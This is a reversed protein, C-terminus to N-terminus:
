RTAWDLLTPPRYQFHYEDAIAQVHRRLLAGQSAALDRTILNNKGWPDSTLDFYQRAPEVENEVFLREGNQSLLGYVPGYSSVVLYDNRLYSDYESKEHTFLPRGFEPANLIPRHGLLYFLSPTVDITFAVKSTDYYLGPLLKKPVHVILPVRLIEPHIALAHRKHGIEKLAEGHDATIVIVSNDYLGRAKLYRIFGGFCVDLRELESAISRDFGDYSRQPHIRSAHSSISIIHINQSQTYLFIPQSSKSSDVKSEFDQATTCLDTDTWTKINEDLPVTNSSSQLLVRLTTDVTIFKRYGDVDVMKELNNLPHFPQVFHKHLLMSGTWISPESLTTGAYRTFANRMVVSDAAFKGLEPTFDVAPNYASVYDQRLSDIVFIFINPRVGQTPKLDQVLGIDLPKVYISPPINTQQDLFECLDDCPATRNVALVQNIVQVSPDMFVHKGIAEDLAQQSKFRLTTAAHTEGWQIAAVLVVFSIVWVASRLISGAESRRTAWFPLLLGFLLAWLLVAALKEFIGNWDLVGIFAPATFAFAASLLLVAAIMRRQRRNDTPVEIPRRRRFWMLRLTAVWAVSVFSIATAYIGAEIGGFPVAPNIVKAFFFKVAVFALLTFMVFRTASANRSRASLSRVLNIVSILGAFFCVHVIVAWLWVGYDNPGLLPPQGNIAYRLYATGPILIGVWVGLAVAPWLRLTGTMPDRWQATSWHCQLDAVTLWLLPCLIVIAWIFSRSDNLLHSFPAAIIMWAAFTLNAAIFVIAIRTNEATTRFKWLSVALAVVFVLLLVPQLRILRPLWQQFPAQIFAFYTDPMYALVGYLSSILLLLGFGIRAAFHWAPPTNAAPDLIDSM